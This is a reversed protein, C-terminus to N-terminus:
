ADEPKKRPTAGITGVREFRQQQQGQKSSSGMTWTASIIIPPNHPTLQPLMRLPRYLPHVLRVPIVLLCLM